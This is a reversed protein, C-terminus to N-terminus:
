VEGSPQELEDAFAPLRGSAFFGDPAGAKSRAYEFIQQTGLSGEGDWPLVESIAVVRRVGDAGRSLQIVVNISGAIQQRVARLPLETGALLCLTELRALAQQPSSAHTTTMSGDHGTNMAQLMDLAEAGRCEGVVIRDPRMRLANHVLQRIPFAGRGELNSPRAELSVVHPQQLSLEAADEITIIREREPIARSLCNLLTTKGSGTGGSVLLNKRARVCACLFRAMEETLCGREVLQPLMLPTRPFKRITLCPGVLSLPPIIAHVRSGDPLRADVAPSSEDIRRGLPAVIREIVAQVASDDTFRQECRELKGRREIYISAAGVVMIESINPDQLLPELPGLGLAEDALQQVLNAHANSSLGPNPAAAVIRDLAQVVRKRLGTDAARDLAISALNLEDLLTRLIRRRANPDQEFNPLTGRPAGRELRMTLAFPGVQLHQRPTKLLHRRRHVLEGGVLTGNASRDELWLGGDGNELLVHHRSVEASCLRVGCSADRGIWLPQDLGASVTYAAGDRPQVELDLTTM